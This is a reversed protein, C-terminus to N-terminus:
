AGAWLAVCKRCKFFFFFAQSPPSMIKVDTNQPLILESFCTSGKTCYYNWFQHPWCFSNPTCQLFWHYFFNDNKKKRLHLSPCTEQLLSGSIWWTTGQTLPSNYCSFSLKRQHKSNTALLTFWLKCTHWVRGWFRTLIFHGKSITFIINNRSLNSERETTSTDHTTCNAASKCLM